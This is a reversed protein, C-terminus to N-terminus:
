NLKQWKYFPKPKVNNGNEYIIEREDVGGMFPRRTVTSGGDPSEYIYTKRMEEHSWDGM